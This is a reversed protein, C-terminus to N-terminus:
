IKKLYKQKKKNQYKRNKTPKQAEENTFFLELKKVRKTRQIEIKMVVKLTWRKGNAFRQVPYVGL